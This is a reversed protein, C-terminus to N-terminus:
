GKLENLMLDERIELLLISHMGELHYTMWKMFEM